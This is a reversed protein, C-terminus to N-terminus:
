IKTRFVQLLSLSFVLDLILLRLCKEESALLFQGFAQQLLATAPTLTSLSVDSPSNVPAPKTSDHITEKIPFEFIRLDM